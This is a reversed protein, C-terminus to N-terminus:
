KALKSLVAVRDNGSLDKIIEINLENERAIDKLLPGQDYGIEYAIFGDESINDKYLPTIARYFDGGDEGGVFASRPEFYIEKELSEYASKSVYPPNSLIAHIDTRDLKKKADGIIFEIRESLGLREANERAVALADESIDLAVASTDETNNLVSLAICGSGTCLDLFKAGSPINKVAYDVLLETDERPILTAETVKYVERYFAAEGLIYQLPEREARRYIAEELKKNESSLLPNLLEYDKVGGVLSFIRRAEGRPDFIGAEKLIASAEKLTM